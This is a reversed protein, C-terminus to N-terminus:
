CSTTHVRFRFQSLRGYARGCPQPKEQQIGADALHLASREDADNRMENRRKVTQLRTRCWAGNVNAEFGAFEESKEEVEDRWSSERDDRGVCEGLHSTWMYLCNAGTHSQEGCEYCQRADHKGDRKDDQDDHKGDGKPKKGGVRDDAPERQRM